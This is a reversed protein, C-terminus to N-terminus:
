EGFGGCPFNSTRTDSRQHPRFSRSRHTKPQQRIRRSRAPQDHRHHRTRRRLPLQQANAMTATVRSPRRRQEKGSAAHGRSHRGIAFDNGGGPAIEKSRHVLGSLKRESTKQFSQRVHWPPRQRRRIQLGRRRYRLRRTREESQRKQRSSLHCGRWVDRLGAPVGAPDIESKRRRRKSPDSQGDVKSQQHHYQRQRQRQWKWQRQWM